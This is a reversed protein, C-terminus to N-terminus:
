AINKAIKILEEKSINGEIRFIFNGNNWIIGSFNLNNDEYYIGEFSSTIIKEENYYETDYTVNTDIHAKFVNIWENGNQYIYFFQVGSDYKSTLEFGDPIYGIKLNDINKIGSTDVVDYTSYDDFKQVIFDRGVTAAFVVTALAIIIAAILLARATSRTLRHYRDGRMKDMLKAIGKKYAETPEPLDFETPLSAVWNILSLEVAAEFNSM